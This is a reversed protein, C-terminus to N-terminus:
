CSSGSYIFSNPDTLMAQTITGAAIYSTLDQPLRPTNQNTATQSPFVPQSPPPQVGGIPFPNINVAPIIPKTGTILGSSIGQAEITTGHPISAMRAYTM